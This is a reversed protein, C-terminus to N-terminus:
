PEVYLVYSPGQMGALNAGQANIAVINESWNITITCSVPLGVTTSCVVTTQPNPLLVNVAKAWQQVDYSALALPACDPPNTGSATTCDVPTALTPDSIVLGTITFGGTPAPAAVGSAWYARDGHMTAALSSAELSALARTSAVGTSSYALAQLKAIGLLGIATVVVAVMVEILTFGRAPRRNHIINM